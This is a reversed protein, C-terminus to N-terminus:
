PTQCFKRTNTVIPAAGKQIRQLRNINYDSIGYLLSNCYDIRFTVFVHVVIVLAEQTLFAKLFHINKLHCNAARCVSTVHEYMSICQGFIVELYKVSGDRTISSAGM